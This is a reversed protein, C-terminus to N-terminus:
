RPNTPRLSHTCERVAQSTLTVPYPPLPALLLSKPGFMFMGSRFLTRHSPPLPSMPEEQSKLETSPSINGLMMGCSAMFGM